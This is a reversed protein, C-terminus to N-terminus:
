GNNMQERLLCILDDYMKYDTPRELSTTGGNREVFQELVEEYVLEKHKPKFKLMLECLTGVVFVVILAAFLLKM